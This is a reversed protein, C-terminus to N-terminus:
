SDAGKFVGLPYAPIMNNKLWEIAEVPSLGWNTPCTSLVEIMTFGKNEMQMAFAKKIAAKAARVHKVDHVSVREI